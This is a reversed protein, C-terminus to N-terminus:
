EKRRLLVAAEGNPLSYEKEVAFGEFLLNKGASSIIYDAEEIKDTINLKYLKAFYRNGWSNFFMYEPSTSIYISNGNGQSSIYEFIDKQRWEEKTPQGIIYGNQSFINIRGIEIKKPLLGLGFSIILFALISYSVLILSFINKLNAKNIQSIWYTALISVGVLMPLTYRADKNRLLTFFLVTSLVILIPYINKIAFIRINKFMFGIGTIFFIFPVLYLQNGLANFSYWSLSSLSAVVPDGENIGAQSGNLILDFTLQGFNQLYWFSLVFFASLLGILINFIIESDKRKWAKYIASILSYLIPLFLVFVLTWKTLMTFGIAIGLYLSWWKNSFEKARILLYAVLSVMATAPADIQYEKFQTVLMPTCLIFLTALISARRGWLRNGIGYVSFALIFIFVSNTLVATRISEGMILYFPITVWYLFPPYYKYDAILKTIEFNKFYEFYWTSNYLHRAMDWHPPRTENSIWFYNATVILLCTVVIFIYDYRKNNKIKNLVTKYTIM